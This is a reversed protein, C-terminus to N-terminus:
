AEEMAKAFDALTMPIIEVNHNEYFRAESKTPEKTTVVYGGELDMTLENAVMRGTDKSFDVGLFLYKKGKRYEKMCPPLGFGGMAETLWDVFDADSIIWVPEPLACGMPKVLVKGTLQADDALKEYSGGSFGQNVYRMGAALVRSQGHILTHDGYGQFVMPMALDYGTDIVYEPELSAIVKHIPTAEPAEGFLQTMRAELTPRGQKQEIYMAARSFEYMLRPSMGRGNNMALILSDSDFPLGTGEFAGMGMYPVTAGSKVEAVIQKIDM